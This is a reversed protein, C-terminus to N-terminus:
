LFVAREKRFYIGHGPQFLCNRGMGSHYYETKGGTQRLKGDCGPVPYLMNGGRWYQKGM